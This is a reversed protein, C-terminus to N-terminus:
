MGMKKSLWSVLGSGIFAAGIAKNQLSELSRVRRELKDREEKDSNFLAEVDEKIEKRLSDMRGILFRTNEDM